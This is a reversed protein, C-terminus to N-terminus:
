AKKGFSSVVADVQPHDKRAYSVFVDSIRREIGHGDTWTDM